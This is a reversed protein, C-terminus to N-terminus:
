CRGCGFVALCMCDRTYAVSFEVKKCATVIDGLSHILAHACCIQSVCRVAQHVNEVGSGGSGDM